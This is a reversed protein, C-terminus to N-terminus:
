SFNGRLFVTIIGSSMFCVVAVLSRLSLRPLGCVGHGSTCGSGLRAGFGVLFGGAIAELYTLNIEYDFSSPHILSFIYGGGLLGLLFLYKWTHDMSPRTVAVELIGSVGALKGNLLLLMSSAAGILIGGIIAEIM